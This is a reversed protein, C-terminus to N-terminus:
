ILRDYAGPDFGTFVRGDVDIVPISRRGTKQVLEDAYRPMDVNREEYDVGNRSLYRKAKKCAGCWEASYLIIESSPASAVVTPRSGVSAKRTRAADGPSLPPPVAMKVFGVNARWQEPVDDMREVFRVRGKADVFQYYLRSASEADEISEWGEPTELTIADQDGALAVLDIENCALAPVLCVLLLALRSRIPQTM